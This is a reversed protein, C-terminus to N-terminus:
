WKGAKGGWLRWWGMVRGAASPHLTLVGGGHDGGVGRGCGLM